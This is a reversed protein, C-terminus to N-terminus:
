QEYCSSNRDWIYNLTLAQPAMSDPGEAWLFIPIGSEFDQSFAENTGFLLAIMQNSVTTFELYVNFEIRFSM